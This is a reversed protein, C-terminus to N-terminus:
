TAVLRLQLHRRRGLGERRHRAPSDVLGGRCSMEVSLFYFLM